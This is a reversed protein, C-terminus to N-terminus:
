MRRRGFWRVYEIEVRGGLACELIGREAGKEIRVGSLRSNCNGRRFLCQDKGVRVGKQVVHCKLLDLSVVAMGVTTKYM